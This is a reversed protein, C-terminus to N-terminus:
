PTKHALVTLLDDMRIKPKYTGRMPIRLFTKSLAKQSLLYCRFPTLRKECYTGNYINMKLYSKFTLLLGLLILGAFQRM